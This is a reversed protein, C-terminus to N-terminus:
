GRDQIGHGQYRRTCCDITDAAWYLAHGVFSGHPSVTTWSTQSRVVRRSYVRSVMGSYVNVPPPQAQLDASSGWYSIHV